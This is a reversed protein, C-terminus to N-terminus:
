WSVVPTALSCSWFRSSVQAGHDHLARSSGTPSAALCSRGPICGPQADLNELRKLLRERQVSSFSQAVFCPFDVVRRAAATPFTLLVSARDCRPTGKRTKIPPAHVCPCRSLRASRWSWPWTWLKEQSPRAAPSGATGMRTHKTERTVPCPPSCLSREAKGPATDTWQRRVRRHEAAGSM